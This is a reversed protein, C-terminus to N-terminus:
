WLNHLVHIHHYICYIVYNLHHEPYSTKYIMINITNENQNDYCTVITIKNTMFTLTVNNRNMMANKTYDNQDDHCNDHNGKEYCTM